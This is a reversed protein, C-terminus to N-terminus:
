TLVLSSLQCEQRTGLNLPFECNLIINATPKDDIAKIMNLYTRERCVKQLTKTMLPHHIKYFSKEAEISITMFNKTKLKNIHHIVFNSKRINFIGQM